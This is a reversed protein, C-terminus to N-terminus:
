SPSSSRSPKTEERNKKLFSEHKQLQQLARRSAELDDERPQSPQHDPTPSPPATPFTSSGAIFDGFQSEHKWHDM